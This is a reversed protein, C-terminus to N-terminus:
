RSMRALEAELRDFNEENKGPAFARVKSCEEPTRFVMRATVETRDEALEKFEVVVLFVPQVIHDWALFRPKDIAIFVCENQYNGGEPSHMVFSWRGGPRLDYTNFTNTFGKPGWWNKLHDPDTWARFVVDRAVNLTRTSIIERDPSSARLEM